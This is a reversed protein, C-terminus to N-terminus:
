QEAAVAERKEKKKKTGGRKVHALLVLLAAPTVGPLRAAAAMDAPRGSNLAARDGAGLSPLRSFDLGPPFPLAEGAALAAAAEAQRGKYPDYVADALATSICSRLPRPRPLSLSVKENDDDNENENENENGGLLERLAEAGEIGTASAAETVKELSLDARALLTWASIQSNSSSSSSFFASQSEEGEEGGGVRESAGDGVRVGGKRWTSPPARVGKLTGSAERVRREREATSVARPGEAAVLGSAVGFRRTLRLDSSDPRLSLRFEARSSLMRYPEPAGRSVLDDILVGIYADSRRLLFPSFPSSSSKMMAESAANAGAVLGQAAAEEYGTTGNIQGALFLGPLGRVQLSGSVLQRPDVYDYEVAYAPALITAAELGPVTKLLEVQDEPELACSLGSPYIVRSDCGEPELWVHHCRDPFRTVKTELSPCYRPEICGPLLSSSSSSSNPSSSSSSVAVDGAGRGSAFTAGRREAMARRVLEETERTTRTAFVDVQPAEPKWNPNDLNLFSLPVPFADGPQRAKAKGGPLRDFDITSADLRPPTGTKLRGLRLGADALASAVGSAAVAAVVDASACSSSSSSLSSPSSSPSSSSTEVGGSGSGRSEVSPLRGAASVRSGVHVRGNLFTGTTLVVAGATIETGCSLKVGVVRSSTNKNESKNGSKKEVLLGEVAGDAIRLNPTESLMRQLAKKYLSRDVQARPGRVAAGRSSNLERYHIAAADAALGILGGLADVERVLAGKGVGGVSPNCSLEGISRLPSPTVLLTFAGRRASAAAAEAGAHGGGVVIVDASSPLPPPSTSSSSTSFSSADVVASRAAISSSLCRRGRDRLASSALLLSTIARM